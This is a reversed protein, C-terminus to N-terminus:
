RGAEGQAPRFTIRVRRYRTLPPTGDDRVALIVHAVQPGEVAPATLRAEATGSDEIELPGRYTGAEPYFMWEYSLRDGNPDTSGAASLRIIEGAHAQLVEDHELKAVPPHNAEDKPKVCWDMRAAFDNQYADRWRWM